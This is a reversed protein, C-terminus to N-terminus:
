VQGLLDGEEDGALTRLRPDDIFPAAAKRKGRRGARWPDTERLMELALGASGAAMVSISLPLIVESSPGPLLTDAITGQPLLGSAAVILLVLCRSFRM